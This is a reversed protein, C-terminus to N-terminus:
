VKKDLFLSDIIRDAVEVADVNYQGSNIRAKLEAVKAERVDPAEGLAKLAVQFDQAKTSFEIRDQGKAGKVEDARDTRSPQIGQKKYVGLIKEPGGDIKM